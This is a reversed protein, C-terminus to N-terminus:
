FKWGMIVAGIGFFIALGVPIMVAAALTMVFRKKTRCMGDIVKTLLVRGPMEAETAEPMSALREQLEQTLPDRGEAIFGDVLAFAQTLAMGRVEETLGPEKFRRTHDKFIDRWEKASKELNAM